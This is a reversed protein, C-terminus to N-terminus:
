AFAAARRYCELLLGNLREARRATVSATPSSARRAKEYRRAKHSDSYGLLDFGALVAEPERRRRRALEGGRSMVHEDLAARARSRAKRVLIKAGGAGVDDAGGGRQIGRGLQDHLDLLRLGVLDGPELPVVHQEAVQVERRIGAEGTRQEID